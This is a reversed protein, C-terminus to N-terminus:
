KLHQEYSDDCLRLFAYTRLAEEPMAFMHMAAAAECFSAPPGIQPNRQTVAHTPDCPAPVEPVPMTRQCERRIKAIENKKQVSIPAAALTDWFYSDNVAPNGALSSLDAGSLKVM